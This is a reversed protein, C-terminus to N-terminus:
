GETAVFIAVMSAHGAFGSSLSISWIRRVTTEEVVWRISSALDVKQIVKGKKWNWVLLYDDGGGSVLLHSLLSPVCLSSVFSTHGLCYTEIIHTQPPGRSVRIHEDRDATIIYNRHGIEEPINPSLSVYLLDTLMSVHGLLNNYQGHKSHITERAHSSFRLQQELAHLNRKTHVTKDNAVPFLPKLTETVKHPATYSENSILPFAYVDGFRDAILVTSDDSTLRVASPRKHM